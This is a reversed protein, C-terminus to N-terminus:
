SACLHLGGLMVGADRWVLAGGAPYRNLTLEFHAVTFIAAYGGDLEFGRRQLDRGITDILEQARDAGRLECYLPDFRWHGANLGVIGTTLVHLEIPHCAGASPLARTEKQKRDTEESWGRSRGARVLITGLESLTPPALRRESVRQRLVDDLAQSKSLIGEGLAVVPSGHSPEQKFDSTSPVPRTNEAEALTGRLAATIGSSEVPKSELRELPERVIEHLSGIAEPDLKCTVGRDDSLLSLESDIRITFSTDAM